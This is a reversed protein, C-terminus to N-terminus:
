KDNTGTVDKVLLSLNSNKIVIRDSEGTSTDSTSKSPNTLSFSSSGPSSVEASKGSYTDVSPLSVSSSSSLFERLLLFAVILALATVLKHTKIWNILSM